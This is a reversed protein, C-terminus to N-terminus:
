ADALEEAPARVNEVPALAALPHEIPADLPGGAIDVYTAATEFFTVRHGTGEGTFVNGAFRGDAVITEGNSGFYFKSDPTLTKLQPIPQPEATSGFGLFTVVTDTKAPKTWATMVYETGVKLSTARVSKGKNVNTM